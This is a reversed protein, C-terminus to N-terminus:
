GPNGLLIVPGQVAFGVMAPRTKDGPQIQGKGAYDLGVWTEAEEKSLSRPKDADAANLITCRSM